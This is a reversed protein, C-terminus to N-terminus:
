ICVYANKTIQMPMIFQLVTKEIPTIFCWIFSQKAPGFSTKEWLYHCTYFRDEVVVFALERLDALLVVSSTDDDPVGEFYCVTKSEFDRHM